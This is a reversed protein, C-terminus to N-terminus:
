NKDIERKVLTRKHWDGTSFDKTENLIPFTSPDWSVSTFDKSKKGYKITEFYKTIKASQSVKQCWFYGFCVFVGWLFCDASQFLRLKVNQMLYLSIVYTLNLKVVSTWLFRTWSPFNAIPFRCTQWTRKRAQWQMRCRDYPVFSKSM